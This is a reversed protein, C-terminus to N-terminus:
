ARKENRLDQLVEKCWSIWGDEYHIGHRLTYYRYKKNVPMKKQNFYQAEIELYQKLKREHVQQKRELDAILKQADAIHGVFIKVLLPDRSGGDVTPLEVWRRLEERGLETLSYKKRDPKGPQAEVTVTTWGLKLIRELERYIQQHTATWFFGISGQFGKTLEYGTKPGDVLGAAIAYSVSM